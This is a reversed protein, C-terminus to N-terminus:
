FKIPRKRINSRKVKSKNSILHKNFEIPIESLVKMTAFDSIVLARSCQELYEGQATEDSVETTWDLVTYEPFRAAFHRAKKDKNFPIWYYILNERYDAPFLKPLWQNAYKVFRNQWDKNLETIDHDENLGKAVEIAVQESIARHEVFEQNNIQWFYGYFLARPLWFGRFWPAVYGAFQQDWEHSPVGHNDVFADPIWKCYLSPLAHCEGYPSDNNFYDNAIEKGVSNYRSVHLKWEPNDQMLEYHVAAGDANEFPMLAINLASRYKKGQETTLLQKLMSYASNTASIENAHHRHNLVFCPKSNLLKTHSIIDSKFNPKVEIAHIKRGQYSKSIEYVTLDPVRELESLIRNNQEVGIVEQLPININEIELPKHKTLNLNALCLSWQKNMFDDNRYNIRVYNLKNALEVPILPDGPQALYLWNDLINELVAINGDVDYELNIGETTYEISQLALDINKTKVLELHQNDTFVCAKKQKEAFLTAKLKPGQGLVKNIKPLILGPESIKQGSSRLGLTRFFDLGVFYIDEHLADLTSILDKRIPLKYDIDSVTIELNLERFFPQKQATIDNHCEIEVYQRVDHLINNQYIDWLKELDTELREDIVIEDNVKALVWGTNPHVKGIAPWADLYARENFKVDTSDTYILENYENYFDIKYDHEVQELAYFEIKERSLALELSLIDDIPYLEQLLRTPLDFYKNPDDSREPTLTPTAGEENTWETKNCPLFPKFGIKLKAIDLHLNNQKIDPLVEELIWCMGQKYARNVKVSSINVGLDRLDAMVQHKVNDRITKEESVLLRIEVKDKAKLNPYLKEALLEKARTVEWKPECQWSMVERPERMSHLKVKEQALAKKYKKLNDDLPGINVYATLNDETYKAHQLIRLVEGFASEGKLAKSIWDTLDAYIASDSLKPYNIFIEKVAQHINKTSGEVILTRDYISFKAHKYGEEIKIKLVNQGMKLEEKLCVLPTVLETSELAFRAALNAFAITEDICPMENLVIVPASYKAPLTKAKKSIYHNSFPNDLKIQNTNYQDEEPLQSAPNLTFNLNLETENLCISEIINPVTLILDNSENLYSGLKILSITNSAANFTISEIYATTKLESKIDQLLQILSYKSNINPFLGCVFHRLCSWATQSNASIIVNNNRQEILATDANLNVNSTVIISGEKIETPLNDGYVKVIPYDLAVSEYGLRASLEIIFASLQYNVKSPIYIVGKLGEAINDENKDILVGNTTFLQELSNM